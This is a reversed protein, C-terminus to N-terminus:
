VTVLIIQTTLLSWKISFKAKAEIINKPSIFPFFLMYVYHAKTYGSTLKRCLLSLTHEQNLAFEM